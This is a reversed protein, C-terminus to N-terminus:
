NLPSRQRAREVLQQARSRSVGLREALKAYSTRGEEDALCQYIEFAISAQEDAIRSSVAAIMAQRSSLHASRALPDEGQERDGVLADWVAQVEHPEAEYGATM